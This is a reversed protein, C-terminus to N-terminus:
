KVFSKKMSILVNRVSEKIDMVDPYLSLLKDTDLENNSRECAIVKLQDEYSFLTYTFDPDIIERYMDLIESHELVGPNTLNFTGVRNDLIMRCMVPLLEDLVTMSNPISCINKYKLLKNIFNRPSEDSSIPMRIRINLTNRALLPLHMLRDTFGKVTSYSSGFFNPKDDETFITKGEEYTFICGTGMYTMHINMQKCILALSIPCFLNDRLNEKLKGPKELYDITPIYEDQYMGHTRGVLCIVHTPNLHSIEKEISEIDDVRLTSVLVSFDEETKQLIDSFILRIKQGIWGRGGYIILKRM